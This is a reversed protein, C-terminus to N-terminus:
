KPSSKKIGKYRLYYGIVWSFILVSIFSLFKMFLLAKEDSGDDLFFKYLYNVIIGGSVGLGVYKQLNRSKKNVESTKKPKGLFPIFVGIAVLVLTFLFDMPAFPYLAILLFPLLISTALPFIYYTFWKSNSSQRKVIIISTLIACILIIPVYIPVFTILSSDVLLLVGPLFGIVLFGAFLQVFLLTKKIM